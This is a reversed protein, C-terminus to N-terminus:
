LIKRLVNKISYRWPVGKAELIIIKTNPTKEDSGVIKKSM